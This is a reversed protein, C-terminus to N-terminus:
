TTQLLIHPHANRALEPSAPGCQVVLGLGIQSFCSHFTESGQEGLGGVQLGQGGGQCGPNRPVRSPLWLSCRCPPTRVKM